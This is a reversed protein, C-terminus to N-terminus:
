EKEAGVVVALKRQWRWVVTEESGANFLLCARDCSTKSKMVKKRTANSNHTVSGCCVPRTLFESPTELGQLLSFSSCCDKVFLVSVSIMDEGCTNDTGDGEPVEEAERNNAVPVQKLNDDSWSVHPMQFMQYGYKTSFRKPLRMQNLGGNCSVLVIGNSTYNRTRPLPPPCPVPEMPSSFRSTHNTLGTLIRTHWLEGAAFRVQLRLKPPSLKNSRAQTPESRVDM